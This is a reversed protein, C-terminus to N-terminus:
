RISCRRSARHACPCARLCSGRTCVECGRRAARHGAAQAQAINRRLFRSV